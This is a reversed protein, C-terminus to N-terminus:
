LINCLSNWPNDAAGQEDHREPAPATWFGLGSPPHCPPIVPQVHERFEDCIQNFLPDNQRIIQLIRYFSDSQKPTFSLSVMEFESYKNCKLSLGSAALAAGLTSSTKPALNINFIFSGNIYGCLMFEGVIMNKACTRYTVHRILPAGEFRTVRCFDGAQHWTPVAPLKANLDIGLTQFIDKKIDEIQPAVIEIIPLLIRILGLDRTTYGLYKFSKLIDLAFGAEATQRLFNNFAEETHAYLSIKYEGNAYGQFTLELRDEPTSWTYTCSRDLISDAANEVPYTLKFDGMKNWSM